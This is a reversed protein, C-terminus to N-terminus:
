GTEEKILFGFLKIDDGSMQRNVFRAMDSMVKALRYSKHNWEDKVIYGNSILHSCLQQVTSNRYRSIESYRDRTEQSYGYVLFYAMLAIHRKQLLRTSGNLMQKLNFMHLAIQAFELRNRAKLSFWFPYKLGGNVKRDEDASGQRM